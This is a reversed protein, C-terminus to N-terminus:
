GCYEGGNVMRRRWRERKESLKPEAESKNLFFGKKTIHNKVSNAKFQKHIMSTYEEGPMKNTDVKVKKVSVEDKDKEDDM